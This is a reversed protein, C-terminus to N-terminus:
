NNNGGGNKEISTGTASTNILDTWIVEEVAYYCNPGPNLPFIGLECQAYGPASYFVSFFLLVGTFFYRM